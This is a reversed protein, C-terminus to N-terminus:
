RVAEPIFQVTKSAGTTGSGSLATATWFIQTPNNGSIILASGTNISCEGWVGDGYILSMTCTFAAMHNATGTTPSFTSRDGTTFTPAVSWLDITIKQGNWSSATTDNIWLQGRHLVIDSSGAMSNINFSPVVVSAGTASNAMLQGATYATTTAPLTFSSAALSPTAWLILTLACLRWLLHRM